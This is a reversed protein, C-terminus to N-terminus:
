WGERERLDKIHAYHHRSHWDYLALNEGISIEKKTEPHVFSRRWQAEDLGRLLRVWRKHVAAIFEVAEEGTAEQSDPLDAWGTQSYAKIVPRDETLAWKFRVYSNLHSDGIHMLLQRVTWGGPRYPTDLRTDDLDGTIGQLKEPFTELTTLWEARMEPTIAKPASFKGIPYKLDELNQTMQM